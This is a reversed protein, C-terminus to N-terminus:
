FTLPHHTVTQLTNIIILELKLKSRFHWFIAFPVLSFLAHQFEFTSITVFHQFDSRRENKFSNFNIPFFSRLIKPIVMKQSVINCM